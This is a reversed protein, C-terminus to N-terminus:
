KPCSHNQMVEELYRIARNVVGKENEDLQHNILLAKPIQVKELLIKALHLKVTPDDTKEQLVKVVFGEAKEYQKKTIAAYSLAMLIDPEDMKHQPIANIIAELSMENKKILIWLNWALTVEPFNGLIENLLLMAEALNGQYYLAWAKRAKAQEYEKDYQYAEHWYKATKDYEGIGMYGHGINALTRYKQRESMKDNHKRWLRDFLNIAGIYKGGKIFNAADEIEADIDIPIICDGAVQINNSGGKIVQRVKENGM